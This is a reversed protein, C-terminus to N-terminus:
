HWSTSPRTVWDQEPSWRTVREPEPLVDGGHGEEHGEHCAVGAVQVDIPRDGWLISPHVLAHQCVFDVHLSNGPGNFGQYTNMIM